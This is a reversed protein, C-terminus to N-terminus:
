QERYVVGGQTMVVNRDEWKSFLHSLPTHRTVRRAGGNYKDPRSTDLTHIIPTVVNPTWQSEPYVGSRIPDGSFRTSYM